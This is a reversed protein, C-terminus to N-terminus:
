RNSDSSVTIRGRRDKNRMSYFDDIEKNENNILVLLGPVREPKYILCYDYAMYLPLLEHFLSNFGPVSSTSGTGDTFKSTTYDFLLPGRDFYLLLAGALTFNPIPYLFVSSGILDYETPIGTTAQYAGTRTTEGVALAAKKDRKKEQQDIQTLITWNGALDKLEVRNLGLHTVALSYDQQNANIQAKGIPLDTYNSDDVEWGNKLLIKRFVKNMAPSLARTLRAVPFSTSDTDSLDYTRNQIDLFTSM